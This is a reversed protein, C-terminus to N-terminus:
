DSRESHRLPNSQDPMRVSRNQSVQPLILIFHLCQSHHIALMLVTLMQPTEKIVLPRCPGSPFFLNLRAKSNVQNKTVNKIGPRHSFDLCRFPLPSHFSSVGATTTKGPVFHCPSLFLPCPTFAVQTPFSIASGQPINRSQHKYPLNTCKIHTESLPLKYFVYLHCIFAKLCNM